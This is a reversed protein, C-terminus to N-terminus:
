LWEFFRTRKWPPTTMWSTDPEPLKLAEQVSLWQRGTLFFDSETGRKTIWAFQGDLDCCSAVELTLKCDNTVYKLVKKSNGEAWLKPAMSANMGRTKGRSCMAKAAADLGVAFGKECFVHFMMDVHAIALQRCSEHRGSEEALIDFDFGLGNWTVIMYGAEVQGCLYDVLDSLDGPTMKERPTRDPNVSYWLSPQEDGEFLVAACSIGLPRHARIDADEPLIKATEIDFALYKRKQRATTKM